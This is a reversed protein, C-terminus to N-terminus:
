KVREPLSLALSRFFDANKGLGDVAAVARAVATKADAKAQQVGVVYPWTMKGQAADRQGKKGTM